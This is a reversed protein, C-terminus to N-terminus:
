AGHRKRCCSVHPLCVEATQLESHLAEIEKVLQLVRDELVTAKGFLIFIDNYFSDETCRIVSKQSTHM